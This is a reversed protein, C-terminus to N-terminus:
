KAIRRNQQFKLIFIWINEDLSSCQPTFKVILKLLLFVYQLMQLNFTYYVSRFPKLGGRYIHTRVYKKGFVRHFHDFLNGHAFLNENAQLLFKSVSYLQLTCISHFSETVLNFIWYLSNSHPCIRLIRIWTGFIWPTNCHISTNITSGNTTGNRLKPYSNTKLIKLPNSPSTM